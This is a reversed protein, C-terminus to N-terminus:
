YIDHNITLSHSKSSLYLSDKSVKGAGISTKVLKSLDIEANPYLIKQVKTRKVGKAVRSENNIIVDRASLDYIWCTPHLYRWSLLGNQMEFTAKDFTYEIMPLSLERMFFPLQNPFSCRIYAANSPAIIWTGGVVEPAGSIYNHGSDYWVYNAGNSLYYQMNPMIPIYDTRNWNPMSYDIGNKWIIAQDKVIAGVSVNLIDAAFLAFGDLSMSDPNLMMYDIDPNFLGVNVEEIKDDKVYSSIINIPYGAFAASVDEMYAFKYQAPMDEKNFQWKNTGYAWNKQNRSVVRETLDIGINTGDYTGGSRFYKIHEIRLRNDEDVWYFLQFTDRLMNLVKQLTIPANKAPDEYDSSLINSKQTILLKTPMDLIPNEGYLFTSYEPTPLHTIGSGTCDLLTQIVSSIPIADKLIYTSRANKEVNIVVQNYTMWLSSYRWMNPSMPFFNDSANPKDYYTGDDRIGYDTPEKSIVSSIRAAQFNYGLEYKYNRNYAVIDNTMLPHTATGNVSRADTLLRAYVWFNAMEVYADGTAGNMPAMVFDENDWYPSVNGGVEYLYRFTGVSHRQLEVRYVWFVSTNTMTVRMYYDSSNGSSPYLIGEYLGSNVQSINGAFLTTADNDTDSGRITVNMEMLINNLNFGFGGEEPITTLKNRDTVVETANQSWYNPAFFCSVTDDGLIYMQIMSRKKMMLRNIEPSLKLLNYEKEIGNLLKEYSDVTNISVEMSRHGQDFVCDTQMFKGRYIVDYSQGLDKSESINIYYKAEFKQSSLIDYDERVFILKNSLKKRYFQQNTELEADISTDSKYIPYMEKYQGAIGYIPVINYLKGGELFQGPMNITIYSTNPPIHTITDYGVESELMQTFQRNSDYCAISYRDTYNVQVCTDAGIGRLQTHMYGPKDTLINGYIDVYGPLWEDLEVKNQLYIVEFRYKSNM